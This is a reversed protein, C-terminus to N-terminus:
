KTDIINRDKETSVKAYFKGKNDRNTKKLLDLREWETTKSQKKESFVSSPKRIEGAIRQLEAKLHTNKGKRRQGKSGKNAIQLDEESLLKAEKCKM